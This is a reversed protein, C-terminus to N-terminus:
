PPGHELLFTKWWLPTLQPPVGPPVCVSRAPTGPKTKAQVGCSDGSNHFVKNKSDIAINEGKRPVAIMLVGCCFLVFDCVQFRGGVALDTKM